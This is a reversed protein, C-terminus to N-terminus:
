TLIITYAQSTDLVRSLSVGASALAVCREVYGKWDTMGAILLRSFILDFSGVHFRSDSIDTINGQVYEINPLKARVHPVPSLDLGYVQAGPFRTAIDHTVIGTGCGVDLAKHISTASLPSHLVRGNMLERLREAREELREHELHSSLYSNM